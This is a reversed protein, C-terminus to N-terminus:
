HIRAMRNRDSGDRSGTVTSGGAERYTKEAEPIPAGDSDFTLYQNHTGPIDIDGVSLHWKGKYYTDYGSARFYDGMTPVTDPDLWTMDNEFDGKAAGTVQSM